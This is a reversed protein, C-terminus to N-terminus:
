GARRVTMLCPISCYFHSLSRELLPSSGILARSTSATSQVAATAAFPMSVHSGSASIFHRNDSYLAHPRPEPRKKCRMLSLFTSGCTQRQKYSGYFPGHLQPWLPPSKSWRDPGSGRVGSFGRRPNLPGSPNRM